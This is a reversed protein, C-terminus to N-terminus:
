KWFMQLVLLFMFGELLFVVSFLGNWKYGVDKPSCDAMRAIALINGAFPSLVFSIVGGLLLCLAIIVEYHPPQVASVLMKGILLISIFPHIGILSLLVM